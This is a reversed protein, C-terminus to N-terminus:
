QGPEGATRSEAVEEAEAPPAAEVPPNTLNQSITSLVRNQFYRNGFVGLRVRVESMACGRGEICVTVKDDCRTRAVVEAGNEGLRSSIVAVGLQSFADETAQGVQQPTGELMMVSAGGVYAIGAGAGIGCAAVVCGPQSAVLLGFAALPAAIRVIRM